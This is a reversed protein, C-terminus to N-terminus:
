AYARHRHHKEVVVIEDPLSILKGCACRQSQKPSAREDCCLIRFVYLVPM